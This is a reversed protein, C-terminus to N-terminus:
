NWTLLAEALLFLIINILFCTIYKGFSCKHPKPTNNQRPHNNNNSNNTQEEEFHFIDWYRMNQATVAPFVFSQQYSYHPMHLDAYLITVTRHRPHHSFGTTGCWLGENECSRIRGPFFHKHISILVDATLKTIKNTCLWILGRWPMCSKIRPHWDTTQPGMWMHLCETAKQTLNIPEM